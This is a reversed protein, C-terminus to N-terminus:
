NHEAKLVINPHPWRAQAFDSDASFSMFAHRTGPVCRLGEEELNPKNPHIQFCVHAICSPVCFFVPSGRLNYINIEAILFRPMCQKECSLSKEVMILKYFLQTRDM